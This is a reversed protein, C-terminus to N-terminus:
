KHKSQVDQYKELFLTIVIILCILFVQFYIYKNVRYIHSHIKEILENEKRLKYNYIISKTIPHMVVLVYVYASKSYPSHKKLINLGELKKLTNKM